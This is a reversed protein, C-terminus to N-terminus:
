KSWFFIIVCVSFFLLLPFGSKADECDRSHFDPVGLSRSKKDVVISLLHKPGSLHWRTVSHKRQPAAGFTWGLHWIPPDMSAMGNACISWLIQRQLFNGLQSSSSVLKKKLLKSFPYSSLILSADKVTLTIKTQQLLGQDPWQVTSDRCHNFGSIWFVVPLMVHSLVCWTIVPTSAETHGASIVVENMGDSLCDYWREEDDEFRIRWNGQSWSVEDIMRAGQKSNKVITKACMRGSKAAFYIGEGPAPILNRLLSPSKSQRYVKGVNALCIIVFICMRDCEWM